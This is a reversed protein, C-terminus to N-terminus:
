LLLAVMLAGQQLALGRAGERVLIMRSRRTRTRLLSIGRIEQVCSSSVAHAGKKLPFACPTRPAVLGWLFDPIHPVWPEHDPCIRAQFANRGCGQLLKPSPFNRSTEPVM